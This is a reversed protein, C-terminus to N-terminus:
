TESPSFHLSAMVRPIADVHYRVGYRQEILQAIRPCTWLDTAFGFARAGKLLCQVLARRRRANLKSPRGPPPIASLAAAGGRRYAALWRCVSQPSTNLARAIQTPGYGQKKLAIARRRRQELEAPSGHPRM